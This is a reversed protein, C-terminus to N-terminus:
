TAAEGALRDILRASEEVNLPQSRLKGYRLCLGSVTDPDGVVTGVGQSELYAAHQHEATELVVFAGNLGPHFGQGSPMVQIELNRQTRLTLLQELQVRMVDRGGIPDIVASEGIAFFLEVMPVNDLLKQRSLRAEVQQDVAEDGLPPCHGTFVARAYDETQLLGPILM